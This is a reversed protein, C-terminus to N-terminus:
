LLRSYTSDPPLLTARLSIRDASPRLPSASATETLSALRNEAEFAVPAHIISDWRGKVVVSHIFTVM